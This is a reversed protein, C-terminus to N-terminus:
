WSIKRNVSALVARMSLSRLFGAWLKPGITYTRGGSEWVAVARGALGAGHAREELEQLISHQEASSKHAFSRNLPFLLMNQGQERVYAVDFSPM